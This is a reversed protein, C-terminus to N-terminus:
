EAWCKFKHAKKIYFYLIFDILFNVIKCNCSDLKPVLTWHKMQVQQNHMHSTFMILDVLAWGKLYDLKDENRKKIVCIHRAYTHVTPLRKEGKRM